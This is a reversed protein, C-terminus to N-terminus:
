ATKYVEGSMRNRTNMVARLEDMSWPRFDHGDVGVDLRKWRSQPWQNHAHGYLHWAGNFSGNWESLPYHCLVIDQGELRLEKYNQFSTIRWYAFSELDPNYDHNGLVVNIEGNLEALVPDLEAAESHFGFDGLHWVVDTPAVTENWRRIMHENMKKTDTFPRRAWRIIGRHGFHTDSTFYTAM